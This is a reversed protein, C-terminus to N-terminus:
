HCVLFLFAVGLIRFIFSLWNISRPCSQRIVMYMWLYLLTQSIIANVRQVQIMQQILGAGMLQGVESEEMLLAFNTFHNCKCTTSTDNTSDVWCGNTSWGGIGGYTFCLKHFSQM